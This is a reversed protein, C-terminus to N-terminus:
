SAPNIVVVRRNEAGRPDGSNAPDCYSRGQVKLVAEPVHEHNVLYDKVAQARQMSLDENYSFTGVADTHGEIVYSVNEGKDRNLAEALAKLTPAAEPTIEASGFQFTIQSNPFTVKGAPATDQTAAASCGTLSVPAVARRAAPRPERSEDAPITASAHVTARPRAAPAAEVAGRSPLGQHPTNLASPVAVLPHLQEYIQDATPASQALAAGTMSVGAVMGLSLFLAGRM